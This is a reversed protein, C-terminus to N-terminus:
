LVIGGDFGYTQLRGFCAIALVQGVSGALAGAQVTVPNFAVPAAPPPAPPSNAMALGCVTALLVIALMAPSATATLHNHKRVQNEFL